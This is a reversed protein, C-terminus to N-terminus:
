AKAEQAELNWKLRAILERNDLHKFAETKEKTSRICREIRQPKSGNIKAIHDYVNMMSMGPKYIDVAEILYTFGKDAASFGHDLLKNGVVIRNM